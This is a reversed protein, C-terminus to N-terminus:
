IGTFHFDSPRTWNKTVMHVTAQWAGGNMPNELCSYQLPNGNGEGHSRSSRSISRSDRKDGANANTPLHKAALIMQATSLGETM